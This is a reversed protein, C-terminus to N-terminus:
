EPRRDERTAAIIVRGFRQRDTVLEPLGRM